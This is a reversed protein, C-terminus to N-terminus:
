PDTREHYRRSFDGQGTIVLPTRPDEAPMRRLGLVQSLLLILRHM